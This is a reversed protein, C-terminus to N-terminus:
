IVITKIVLIELCDAQPKEKEQESDRGSHEEEEKHVEIQDWTVLVGSLQSNATPSKPLHATSFKIEIHQM